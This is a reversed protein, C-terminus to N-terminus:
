KEMKLFALNAHLTEITGGTTNYRSGYKIQSLNFESELTFSIYVRKTINCIRQDPFAINHEKDTSFTNSNTIRTNDHTIITASDDMNKIAEFISQQISQHIKASNIVSNSKESRIDLTCKTTFRNNTVTVITTHEIRRNYDTNKENDTSNDADTNTNSNVNKM